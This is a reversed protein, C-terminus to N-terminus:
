AFTPDTLDKERAMVSACVMRKLLARLQSVM